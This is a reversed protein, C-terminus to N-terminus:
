GVRWVSGEQGLVSAVSPPPTSGAAPRGSPSRRHQLCTRPSRNAYGVPLRSCSRAKGFPIAYSDVDRALHVYLIDNRPDYTNV